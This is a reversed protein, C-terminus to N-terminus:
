TRVPGSTASGAITTISSQCPRADPAPQEVREDLTRLLLPDPAELRRHERVVRIRDVHELRE